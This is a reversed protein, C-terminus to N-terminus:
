RGAFYELCRRLETRDQIPQGHISNGLAQRCRTARWIARLEEEAGEDHIRHKSASFSRPRPSKIEVLNYAVCAQLDSRHQREFVESLATAALTECYSLCVQGISQAGAERLVVPNTCRDLLGLQTPSQTRPPLEDLPTIPLHVSNAHTTQAAFSSFSFLLAIVPIKFRSSISDLSMADDFTKTPNNM